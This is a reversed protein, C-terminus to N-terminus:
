NGFEPTIASLRMGKMYRLLNNVSSRYRKQTKPHVVSALYEEAYQEFKPPNSSPLRFKGQVIEGQRSALVREAVRRNTTGTSECHQRGGICYAIWWYKSGSRRYLCGM